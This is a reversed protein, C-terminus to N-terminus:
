PLSERWFSPARFSLILFLKKRCLAATPIVLDFAPEERSSAASRFSLIKPVRALSFKVSAASQM